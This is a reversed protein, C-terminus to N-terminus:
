DARDLIERIKELLENPSLPKQLFNFEKGAIGKELVIDSTYGSMFLFKTAPALSLIIDHAERGNLKPMISDLIVLNIGRHQEFKTIADEGDVAEIVAYGYQGLIDKVFRRADENDEAVLITEWGGKVDRAFLQEEQPEIKVLPLYIHFSTGQDRESTVTIYGSHQKVIGYVTSLGLGTGRGVEKTTFFPDFIKEQTDKGMGVGTDSVSLCAYPGREGFGHTLRFNHDLVVLDTAIRLTGGRPMADRANTTLNFLIQDIQTIDALVVLKSEALRTELAIDETILRKLLKETGKVITNINVPKLTLPRKRSFALLSQTLNVAKHSASLVQDAYLRLPNTAEMKSQLLTGYGILATLINNFDHAIGGALTGIAEMKQAQRLQSEMMKERTIDVFTGCFAPRGNYSSSGGFVKVLIVEGDKRIVRFDYEICDIEGELRKEVNKAVLARDDPHILDMYHITNVADDYSYGTLECFRHNVFRFLDDQILYFGALSSEVVSRYKAESELLAREVSKRETINELTGDINIMNGAEDHVTRASMSTWIIKRDKRYMQLELGEVFGHEKLQELFRMRDESRAYIQQALDNITTILEEPSDFGMMRALAPNANFLRGEVTTQFIGEVANEFINRYKEESERLAKEAWKRETIDTSVGLVADGAAPLTFPIKTTQLIRVRGKSDTITEEPIEKPKGSDIVLLDDNSFHEVEDINPNFDVDTKGILGEVTTGYADAVAKNVLVFRGDRDRAFIFM